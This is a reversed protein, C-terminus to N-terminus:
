DNDKRYKDGIQGPEQERIHRQHLPLHDPCQNDDNGKRQHKEPHEARIRIDEPQRRKDIHHMQEDRQCQGVAARQDHRHEPRGNEAIMQRADRDQEDGVDHREHEQGDGPHEDLHQVVVEVQVPTRLALQVGIDVTRDGADVDGLGDARLLVVTEPEHAEHSVIRGDDSLHHHAHLDDAVVLVEHVLQVPVVHLRHDDRRGLRFHQLVGVQGVAEQLAADLDEQRRFERVIQGTGQRPAGDLFDLDLVEQAAVGDMDVHLLNGRVQFPLANEDGAGGAGDATFDHTLHRQEVGVLQDQDIRGFGRQVVDAELDLLFPGFDVGGGDDGVDGVLGPHLVDELSVAGLVDEVRRGILVHRHHLVIDGLGDLVVDHARLDQGVQGDFVLDLAEHHDGGVLGHVGGVHHAARLTDALDIHLREGALDLLFAQRRGLENGRAEAVDQAGVAGHNRQEAPLDLGTARHGDGVRLDDAVEHGDGLGALQHQLGGAHATATFDIDEVHATGDLDHVQRLAHDLEGAAGVHLDDERAEPMALFEIFLEKGRFLVGFGGRVVLDHDGLDALVVVLVDGVVDVGEDGAAVFVVGHLDYRLHLVEDRLELTQVRLIRDQIFVSRGCVM